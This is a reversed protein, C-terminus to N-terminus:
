SPCLVSPNLTYEVVLPINIRTRYIWMRNEFMHPGINVRHHSRTSIAELFEHFQGQINMHRYSNNGEEKVFVDNQKQFLVDKEPIRQPLSAFLSKAM